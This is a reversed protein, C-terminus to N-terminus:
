VCAVHGGQSSCGGRRRCALSFHAGHGGPQRVQAEASAPDSRLKYDGMGAKAAEIAALDDPHEADPDPKAEM